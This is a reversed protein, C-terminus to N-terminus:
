SLVQGECNNFLKLSISLQKMPALLIAPFTVVPTRTDTQDALLMKKEPLRALDHKLIRFIFKLTM